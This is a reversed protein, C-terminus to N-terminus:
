DLKILVEGDVPYPYQRKMVEDNMDAMDYHLAYIDKNVSIIENKLRYNFDNFMKTEFKIILYNQLNYQGILTHHILYIIIFSFVFNYLHSIKLFKRL